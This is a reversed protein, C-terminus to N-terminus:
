CKINKGEQLGKIKQDNYDIITQSISFPIIQGHPEEKKKRPNVVRNYFEAPTRGTKAVSKFRVEAETIVDGIKNGETPEGIYLAGSSIAPPCPNYIHAKM